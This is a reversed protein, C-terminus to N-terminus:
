LSPLAQLKKKCGFILCPLPYPPLLRLDHQELTHVSLFESASPGGIPDKFGKWCPPRVHCCGVSTKLNYLWVWFSGKLMTAELTAAVKTFFVPSQHQGSLTMHFKKLNFVVRHRISDITSKHSPFKFLLNISKTIQTSQIDKDVVDRVGRKSAQKFVCPSDSVQGGPSEQTVLGPKTTLCASEWCRFFIKLAAKLRKMWDTFQRRATFTYSSSRQRQRPRGRGRWWWHKHGKDYGFGQFFIRACKM